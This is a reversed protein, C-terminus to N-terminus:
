RVIPVESKDVVSVGTLRVGNVPCGNPSWAQGPQPERLVDCLNRRTLLPVRAAPAAEDVGNNIPVLKRALIM